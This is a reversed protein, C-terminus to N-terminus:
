AHCVIACIKNEIRSIGVIRDSRRNPKEPPSNGSSNEATGMPCAKGIRMRGRAEPFDSHAPVDRSAPPASLSM